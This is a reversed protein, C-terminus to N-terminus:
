KRDLNALARLIKEKIFKQRQEPLIKEGGQEHVYFSDIAAGRETSIKAVSIEVDVEALAQSVAYLLGLRDETEIEIVTRAESIDNDFHIKTPIREGAVSQYALRGLKQRIILPAFDVAGGTL